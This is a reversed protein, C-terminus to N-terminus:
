LNIIFDLLNTEKDLNLKKRLRYRITEVGRVSLNLMNAIEKTNLSMRLYACIKLEQTSLGPYAKRLKRFFDKYVVDFHQEFYEWDKDDDINKDVRRALKNLSHKVEEHSSLQLIHRIDDKIGSLYDNKRMLHMTTSALERNKHAIETQLNESKLKNIEEESKKSIEEMLMDKRNLERNSRLEIMKKERSHKKNVQYFIFFSLLLLTLAYFGYALYHRYWPPRIYFAFQTIPSVSAFQNKFRLQFTYAGEHLNTYEKFNSSNWPSWGDEFNLLRYQYSASNLGGYQRASFTFRINNYPYPFTNKIGRLQYSAVSKFLRHNGGYIMSDKGNHQIVINRLVPSELEKSRYAFTPDYSIFGEKAGFLVMNADVVTINELNDSILPKIKNFPFTTKAFESFQNKKLLGMENDTVFYINGAVDEEMEIVRIQPDFFRQYYEDPVMRDTKSDYKYIGRQACFVINGNIKFVNILQNSPFGRERDYYQVDDLSSYDERFSMKYVGKFGHSVWINGHKDEEFLRSSEKYGKIKGQSIWQNGKKKYRIMGEYFGQLLVDRATSLLKFDWAGLEHDMVYVADDIIEFAGEHHGLLLKNEVKSIDYVQGGSGRILKFDDNENLNRYFLGNSTGLLLKNHSKLAAYGSGNVGLTEDIKRFPSNLEVFSIGNDLGLWLNQDQDQFVEYVTQNILGRAKNIHELLKGEDDALYIGNNQTGIVVHGNALRVLTNILDTKLQPSLETNWPTFTYGDYQLIEGRLTAILITGNQYPAIARISKGIFREGGAVPLFKDNELKLLGKEWGSVYLTRHVLYSYLIISEPDFVKIARGDYLFIKKHSCFYIGEASQYINWVEDFDMQNGRIFDKLSHYKLFGNEDSAFYGFENQAGIYIRGTSDVLVSKISVSRETIHLHWSEGNYQLLGFHNAFYFYGKKDVAIDWNQTGAQYDLTSYNTIFPLGISKKQANALVACFFVFLIILYKSTM